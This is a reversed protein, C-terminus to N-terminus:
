FSEQLYLSICCLLSHRRNYIQKESFKVDTASFDLEKLGEKEIDNDRIMKLYLLKKFTRTALIVIATIRVFSLFNQKLLSFLNNSSMEREAFKSVDLKSKVNVVAFVGSEESGDFTNFAIGEKVLKKTKNNLKIDKVSKIVRDLKAQKISGQM